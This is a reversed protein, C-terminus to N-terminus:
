ASQWLWVRVGAVVPVMLALVFHHLRVVREIEDPHIPRRRTGIWPKELREGAYSLPGGFRLDLIGALAAEPYGANPSEHARGFRRVFQWGRRSRAATVLLAATLRAPVWNAFDDLRAAVKGFWFYREDKHGIMSDLTNVVKYAMMAPLGGVAYWCLPAVVGDSLNEAMTELAATRVQTVDLGATDRGVIRALRGRGADLSEGVARFVARGEDILTRHALGYFLGVAVLVVEAMPHVRAAAAQAVAALVAVGGVLGCVLVAGSLLRAAAPGRNLWRDGLAILRGYGVTPHPWREPDGFRLDLAVGALLPLVSYIMAAM